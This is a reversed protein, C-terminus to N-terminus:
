YTRGCHQPGIETQSSEMFKKRPFFSYPLSNMDKSCTKIFYKKLFVVNIQYEHPIRLTLTCNNEMEHKFETQQTAANM